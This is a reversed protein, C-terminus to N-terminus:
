HFRQVATLVIYNDRRRATAIDTMVLILAGLGIGLEHADARALGAAFVQSAEPVRHAHGLLEALANRHPQADETLIEDGKAIQRAVVTEQVQVAAMAIRREFEAEDGLVANAAAIVAPM